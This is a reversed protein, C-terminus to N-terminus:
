EGDGNALAWVRDKLHKEIWAARRGNVIEDRVGRLLRGVEFDLGHSLALEIEPQRRTGLLHDWIDDLTVQDATIKELSEHALEERAQKENRAFVGDVFYERQEHDRLAATNGDLMRM